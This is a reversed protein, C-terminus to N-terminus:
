ETGLSPHTRDEVMLHAFRRTISLSLIVVLVSNTPCRTSPTDEGLGQIGGYSSLAWRTTTRYRAEVPGRLPPCWARSPRLSSLIDLNVPRMDAEPRVAQPCGLQFLSTLICLISPTQPQPICRLSPIPYRVSRTTLVATSGVVAPTKNPSVLPTHYPMNHPSTAPARSM